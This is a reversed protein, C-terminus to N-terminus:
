VLITPNKASNFRLVLFVACLNQMLYEETFTVLDATEQPDLWMSQFIRLPFSKKKHLKVATMWLINSVLELKWTSYRVVAFIDSKWSKKALM